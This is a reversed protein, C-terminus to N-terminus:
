KKKKESAYLDTITGEFMAAAMAVTGSLPPHPHVTLSIDEASCGMEIALVLESILDSANPGVIGTGIVRCSANDFLVKTLGENRGMILARGSAAWCFVAKGYDM